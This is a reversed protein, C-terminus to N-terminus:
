FRDWKIRPDPERTNLPYQFGITSVKVPEAHGDVYATNASQVHRNVIRHPNGGAFHGHTPTLFYLLQRGPQERWQDPDAETANSVRGADGFLVTAAPALINQLSPPAQPTGYNWPSFSLEIHNLGIGFRGIGLPDPTGNPVGYQNGGVVSPCDVIFKAPLHDRLLDPWWIRSMYGPYGPVFADPPPTGSIELDVMLDQHDESYLRSGLTAQRMNSLCKAGKGKEKAANLAPLLLAALIAIIAVVVLLEILTFARTPQQNNLSM